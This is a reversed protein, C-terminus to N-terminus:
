LIDGIYFTNMTNDKELVLAGNDTIEVARGSHVTGLVNIKVESNLFSARKVYDNKISLFGEDLFNDYLLCFKELLAHLFKERDIERNLIVSLSTAPKDIKDLEEQTTNLNIGIGLAIGKFEGGQITSESLIGAIKKNNVLVDNPWKIRGDVGYEALTECLVVSLYQTLNPFVNQYKNDPKLLITLYINQSGTDIWKRNLRGRGSTQHSTYVATLDSLEAMHEKVYLNTSDVSDLFIVEM